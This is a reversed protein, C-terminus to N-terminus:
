KRPIKYLMDNKDDNGLGWDFMAKVNFGPELYHGYFYQIKVRAYSLDKVHEYIEKPIRYGHLGETYRIVKTKTSPDYEVMYLGYYQREEYEHEMYVIDGIKVDNKERVYKKVAEEYMDHFDEDFSFPEINNIMHNFRLNRKYMSMMVKRIDKQKYKYLKDNENDNRVDEDGLKHFKAFKTKRIFKDPIRSVVRRRPNPANTTQKKKVCRKTSEKYTCPNNVPPSGNSKNLV